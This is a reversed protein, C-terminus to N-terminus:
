HGVRQCRSRRANRAGPTLVRGLKVWSQWNVQCCHSALLLRWNGAGAKLVWRWSDTGLVAKWYRTPLYQTLDHTMRPPGSYHQHPLQPVWQRHAVWPWSSWTFIGVSPRMHGARAFQSVFCLVSARWECPGVTFVSCECMLAWCPWHLSTVLCHGSTYSKHWVKKCTACTLFCVSM